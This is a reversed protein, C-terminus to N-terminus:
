SLVFPGLKISEILPDDVVEVVEDACDTKFGRSEADLSFLIGTILWM